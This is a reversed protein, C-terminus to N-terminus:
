TVVVLHLDISRRRRVLESTTANESFIIQTDDPLYELDWDFQGPENPSTPPPTAPGFVQAIGETLGLSGLAIRSSDPTMAASTLQDNVDGLFVAAETWTGSSLEYVKVQGKNGDYTPNSASLFQSGDSSVHIFRGFGSSTDGFITESM